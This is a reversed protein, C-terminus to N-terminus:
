RYAQRILWTRLRTRVYVESFLAVLWDSIGSDAAAARDIDGAGDSVVIIPIESALLRVSRCLAMVDGDPQDESLLLLSPPAERMTSLVAEGSEASQVRLGTAKAASCLLDRSPEDRVAILVAQDQVEPAEAVIATTQVSSPKGKTSGAVDVALGEAAAFLEVNGGAAAVRDRCREVLRDVDGDERRPDHHFLALRKVDAAMAVDAVFEVTSHGWGIRNPYEEATFQADHILLDAGQLFQRYGEDEGVMGAADGFALRRDHPEHDTAYVVVAGNCEFRYAVALAPHNVFRTTIRVDDIEFEGEVVNHFTLNAFFQELPLPFYTYDMQGALIERISAGMSGTGYVHWDAEADYFPDFFPLGQIHDWHAHTILLHGSRGGAGRRGLDQGLAQVGTGCDLVILTGADSGLEICATNGGYRVTGPGPAPISGRTGWFRIHM